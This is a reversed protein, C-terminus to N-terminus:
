QDIRYRSLLYDTVSRYEVDDLVTDFILIEHIDGRFFAYLNEELGHGGITRPSSVRASLPASTAASERGDMRLEARDAPVDYTYALLTPLGRPAGPLDIEGTTIETGLANAAWLGAYVEQSHRISMEITPAYGGFNLIQGDWYSDNQGEVSPTCVVFISVQDGTAITDTTLRTSEGNFRVGPMGHGSDEIWLPQHEPTFQCADNSIRNDGVCIDKWVSVRNEPGRKVLLEATVWFELDRVVPLGPLQDRSLRPTINRAFREPSASIKEGVRGDGAFRVADLKRAHIAEGQLQGDALRARAVVDGELVHVETSDDVDVDLAFETGLDVVKANPTSVTYGRAWEPVVATMKGFELEAEMGSLPYFRAPGQLIVKAGSTFTLQVLGEQLDLCDGHFLTEGFEKPESEPQWRCDVLETIRAAPNPEPEGEEAPATAVSDQLSRVEDLWSLSTIAYTTLCVLIGAALLARPSRILNQLVGPQEAETEGHSSFGDAILATSPDTQSSVCHLTAHMDRYRVFTRLADEDSKLIEALKRVDDVAAKGSCTADILKILTQQDISKM